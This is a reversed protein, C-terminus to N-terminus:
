ELVGLTERDVWHLDEVAFLTGRDGGLATLLRLVGEALVLPSEPWGTAESRWDPVLRGLATRYPALEAGTPLGSRRCASMLADALPRYPLRPAEVARGCVAVMRREEAQRSMERVLRSKGIGAEGVLAVVGGSGGWLTRTLAELEERRGVLAPCLTQPM